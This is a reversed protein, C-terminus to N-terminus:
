WNFAQRLSSLSDQDAKFRMKLYVGQSTYNAASFDSDVFGEFNYGISTWMNKVPTYGVSLGYSGEEAQNGAFLERGHIGLDWKNTFNHRWEAALYNTTGTYDETNYQDLVRKFGYQAALQDRASFMWNAHINNIFKRSESRSTDNTKNDQLLRTQLLVAIDKKRPRLALDFTADWSKSDGQQDDQLYYNISGGTALADTLPHYLSSHLLTTESEQGNRREVRNTWQLKEARYAWGTSIAKFDETSSQSETPFADAM